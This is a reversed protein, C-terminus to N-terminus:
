FFIFYNKLLNVVTNLLEDEYGWLLDKVSKKTNFDFVENVMFYRLYDIFFKQAFKNTTNKNTYYEIFLNSIFKSNFLNESNAIKYIEDLTIENCKEPYYIKCFEFFEPRSKYHDPRWEVISETKNTQDTVTGNLWQALGIKLKNFAKYNGNTVNYKKLILDSSELFKKKLVSNERKLLSYTVDDFGLYEKLKTEKYLINEIWFRANELNEPNIKKNDCIKNLLDPNVMVKVVEDSLIYTNVFDPCKIDKFFETQIKNEFIGMFSDQGLFEFFKTLGQHLLESIAGIGKSGGKSYRFAVDTSIYELYGRLKTSEEIDNIQLQENIFKISDNYNKNFITDINLKNLLSASDDVPPATSNFDNFSWLKLVKEITLNSNTLNFARLYQGYEPGLEDYISRNSNVDLNLWQTLGLTKIDRDKIVNINTNTFIKNKLLEMEHFALNFYDVFFNSYESPHTLIGKM